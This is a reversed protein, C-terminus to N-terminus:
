ESLPFAAEIEVNGVDKCYALATFNRTCAAVQIEHLDAGSFLNAENIYRLSDSNSNVAILAQTKTITVRKEILYQVMMGDTDLVVDIMATNIRHLPITNIAIPDSVVLNILQTDAIGAALVIGLVDRPYKVQAM